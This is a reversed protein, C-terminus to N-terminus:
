PKLASHRVGAMNWLKKVEKEVMTVLKTKELNPNNNHMLFFYLLLIQKKTPLQPMVRAILHDYSAGSFYAELWKPGPVGLLGKEAQRRPPMIQLVPFNTLKPSFFNSSKLCTCHFNNYSKHIPLTQLSNKVDSWKIVTELTCHNPLEWGSLRTLPPSSPFSTKFTTMAFYQFSKRMCSKRGEYIVRESKYKVHTLCHPVSPSKFTCCNQTRFFGGVGRQSGLWQASPILYLFFPKSNFVSVSQLYHPLQYDSHSGIVASNETLIVVLQEYYATLIVVM